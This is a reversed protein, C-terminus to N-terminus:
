RPYVYYRGNDYGLLSVADWSWVERTDLPMTGGFTPLGPLDVIDELRDGTIGTFSNLINCLESLSQANNVNSQMAHM